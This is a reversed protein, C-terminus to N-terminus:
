SHRGERGRDKADGAEVIAREEQNKRTRGGRGRRLHGKMM